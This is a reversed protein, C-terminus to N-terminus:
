APLPAESSSIETILNNVKDWMSKGKDDLLRDPHHFVKVDVKLTHGHLLLASAKGMAVRVADATFDALRSPAEVIVADHLSACVKLEQETLLCLVVRLMEAGTAQMTFNLVTRPKTGKHVYLRWGLPTCICKSAQAKLLYSESWDWFRPFFKRHAAFLAEADALSIGLRRAAGAPTLGFMVGLSVIKYLERERPHTVKTAWPPVAGALKALFM